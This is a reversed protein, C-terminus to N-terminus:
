RRRSRAFGRGRRGGSGFGAAAATYNWGWAGIGAGGFVTHAPFAQEYWPSTTKPGSAPTGSEAAPV